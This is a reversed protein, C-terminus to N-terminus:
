NVKGHQRMQVIQLYEPDRPFMRTKVPEYMSNASTQICSKLM